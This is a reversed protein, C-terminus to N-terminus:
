GKEKWEEVAKRLDRLIDRVPYSKESIVFLRGETDEIFMLEYEERVVNPNVFSTEQEKEINIKKIEEFPIVKKGLTLRDAYLHVVGVRQQSLWSFVATGGAILGLIFLLLAILWKKTQEEYSFKKRIVLGMAVFAAVGVIIGLWLYLQDESYAPEYTKILDTM